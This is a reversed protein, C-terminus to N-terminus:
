YCQLCLWVSSFSRSQLSHKPIWFYLRGADGWMMGHRELTEHEISYSDVQLLLLWDSASGKLMRAQSSRYAQRDGCYVGHSALQCKLQMDGQIQDPHGLMRHVGTSEVHQLKALREHVEQYADMEPGSMSLERFYNSRWDPLTLDITFSLVCPMFRADLSLSQPADQRSLESPAGDFRIVHWGGRHKPDYGWPQEKCDYFFYLMGTDPLAPQLIRPAGEDLDLAELFDMQLCNAGHLQVASAAESLQIQAIFGMPEGDRLPWEIHPPLDPSGGIKSCGTPLDEDITPRAVLRISGLLLPCLADTLHALGHSQLLGCAEDRTM